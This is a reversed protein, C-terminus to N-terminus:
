EVLYQDLTDAQELMWEDILRDLDKTEVNYANTFFYTAKIGREIINKRIVYALGPEIGKIKCWEQLNKIFQGNSNTRPSNRYTFTGKRKVKTGSVGKDIFKAYEKMEFSLQEEEVSAKISNLLGGSSVKGKSTLNNKARSVVKDGIEKLLENLTM